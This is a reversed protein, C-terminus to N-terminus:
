IYILTIEVLCVSLNLATDKALLLKNVDKLSRQIYTNNKDERKSIDTINGIINERGFRALIM